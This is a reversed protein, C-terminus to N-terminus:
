KGVTATNYTILTWAAPKTATIATISVAASTDTIHVKETICAIRARAIYM